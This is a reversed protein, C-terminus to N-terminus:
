ERNGCDCYPPIVRTRRLDDLGREILYRAVDAEAAGYGWGTLFKLERLQADTLDIRVGGM